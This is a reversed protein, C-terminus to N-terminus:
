SWTVSVQSQSKTSRERAGVFGIEEVGRQGEEAQKLTVCRDTSMSSGNMDEM